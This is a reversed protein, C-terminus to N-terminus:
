RRIRRPPRSAFGTAARPRCNGSSGGETAVLARAGVAALGGAVDVTTREAGGADLEPIIQLVRAGALAGVEAPFGSLAHTGEGTRPGDALVRLGGVPIQWISAVM